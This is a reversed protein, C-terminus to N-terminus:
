ILRSFPWILRLLFRIVALSLSFEADEGTDYGYRSPPPTMSRVTHTTLKDTFGFSRSAPPSPRVPYPQFNAKAQRCVPCGAIFRAHAACHASSAHDPQNLVGGPLEM